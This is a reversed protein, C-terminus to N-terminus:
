TTRPTQPPKPRAAAPTPKGTAAAPKPKATATPRPARAAPTTKPTRPPKPTTAAPGPATAPAAPKAAAAPAAKRLEDLAAQILQRRNRARELKRLRKSEQRTAAALEAELKRLNKRVTRAVKEEASVSKGSRGKAM